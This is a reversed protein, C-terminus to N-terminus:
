TSFYSCPSSPFCNLSFNIVTFSILKLNLSNGDKFVARGVPWRGHTLAFALRPAAHSKGKIKIVLNNNKESGLIGGEKFGYYNQSRTFKGTYKDYDVLKIIEVIEKFETEM